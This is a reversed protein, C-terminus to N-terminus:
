SGDEGDWYDLSSDARGIHRFSAPGTPDRRDSVLFKGSDPYECLEVDAKSSVAIYRLVAEGTNTLKHATEPGGRPAGLVDGAKVEFSRDGFRYEAQGGLIVFMEDEMHHNHFPCSSKGPPVEIYTAGIATLGLREGLPTDQSEYSTGQSFPERELDAIRAVPGPNKRM